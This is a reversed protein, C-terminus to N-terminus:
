FRVLWDGQTRSLDGGVTGFHALHGVFTWLAGM